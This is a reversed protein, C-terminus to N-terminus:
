VLKARAATIAAESVVKLPIGSHRSIEKCHDFEAKISAIEGDDLFRSVKVNVVGKRETDFPLRPEVSIMSRTLKARPLNPYIRIGLTTTHRFVLEIMNQTTAESCLCHLTHAPRGKKMVIPTVWADMAGHDLLLEVVYALNEGTTDDLNSELHTVTDSLWRTSEYYKKTNDKILATTTTTATANSSSPAEPEGVLLNMPITHHNDDSDSLVRKGSGSAHLILSVPQCRDSRHAGSLVRLLAVGLPTTPTTDSTPCVAMGLLLEKTMAHDLARKEMSNGSGSSHFPHQPISTCSIREVGMSHLCLLVGVAHFMNQYSIHFDSLSQDPNNNNDKDDWLGKYKSEVRILESVVDILQNWFSNPLQTTTTTTTPKSRNEVLKTRLWRPRCYSTTSNFSSSVNGKGRVEEGGQENWCLVLSADTADREIHVRVRHCDEEEEISVDMEDRVFGEISDLLQNATSQPSSSSSSVADICAALLSTESVGRSCDVHGQWRRGTEQGHELKPFNWM